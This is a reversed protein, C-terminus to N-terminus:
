PYTGNSNKPQNLKLQRNVTLYVRKEAFLRGMANRIDNDDLDWKMLRLEAYLTAPSVTNAGNESQEKLVDLVLDEVNEGNLRDTM